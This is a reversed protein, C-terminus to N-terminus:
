SCYLEIKVQCKCMLALLTVQSIEHSVWLYLLVCAIYASIMNCATYYMCSCYCIHLKYEQAEGGNFGTQACYRFYLCGLWEFWPSTNNYQVYIEQEHRYIHYLSSSLVLRSQHLRGKFYMLDNFMRIIIGYVYTAAFVYWTGTSTSIMLTSHTHLM